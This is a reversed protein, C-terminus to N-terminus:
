MGLALGGYKLPSKYQNQLGRQEKVSYIQFSKVSDTIIPITQIRPKYGLKRM